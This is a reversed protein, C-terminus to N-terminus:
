SNENHLSAVINPEDKYLM